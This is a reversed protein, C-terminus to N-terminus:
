EIPMYVGHNDLALKQLFDEKSGPFGMTFIRLHRLTNAKKVFAHIEKILGLTDKAVFVKRSFKSRIHTPAGDTILYLTDILPDKFALEIADDTFTGGQPELEDILAIAREKHTATATMQQTEWAYAVTSFIIVNFTKDKPLGQIAAITEKKARTMRVRNNELEKQLESKGSGVGTRGRLKKRDAPTLPDKLVMSGSVDLVFVIHKGTLDLGFLTVSTTGKPKKETKVTKPDIVKGDLYTRYASAMDRSVGTLQYLADKFALFQRSTLDKEDWFDMGDLLLPIVEASRTRALLRVATLVLLEDDEFLAASTLERGDLHDNQLSAHLILLQAAGLQKKKKLKRRLKRETKEDFLAPFYERLRELTKPDEIRTLVKVLESFVFYQEKPSEGDDEVFQRYYGLLARVGKAPNKQIKLEVQELVDAFDPAEPNAAGAPTAASFFCFLFLNFWLRQITIVVEWGLIQGNPPIGYIPPVRSSRPGSQLPAVLAM